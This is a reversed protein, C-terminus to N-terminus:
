TLGGTDFAVLRCRMHICSRGRGARLAGRTPRLVGSLISLVRQVPALSSDICSVPLRETLRWQGVALSRVGAVPGEHGFRDACLSRSARSRARCLPRRGNKPLLRRAVLREGMVDQIAEYCAGAVLLSSSGAGFFQPVPLKKTQIEGSQSAEDIAIGEAFTPLWDM